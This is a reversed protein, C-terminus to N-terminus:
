AFTARAKDTIATEFLTNKVGRLYSLKALIEDIKNPVEDCVVDIDLLFAATNPIEPQVTASQLIATVGDDADKRDVRWYYNNIADWPATINITFYNEYRALKDVGFPVDIRNVTRLGLRAFKRFGIAEHADRLDREVRPYFTDWGDYPPLRSWIVMDPRVILRDAQDESTLIMQPIPDAFDAQANQFDIQAARTHQEVRSPYEARVRRVLKKFVTPKLPEAFRLEVVVETIPPKAYPTGTM